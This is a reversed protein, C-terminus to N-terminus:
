FLYCDSFIDVNGPTGYGGYRINKIATETSDTWEVTDEKSGLVGAQVTTGIHSLFRVKIWLGVWSNTDTLEVVHVIEQKLIEKPFNGLWHKNFYNEYISITGDTKFYVSYVHEPDLTDAVLRVILSSSGSTPFKVYFATKFTKASMEDEELEVRYGPVWNLDRRLNAENQCSERSQVVRNEQLDCGLVLGTDPDPTRPRTRRKCLCVSMDAVAKCETNDLDACHRQDECKGGVTQTAVIPDFCGKGIARAPMPIPLYGPMCQCTAVYLGAINEETM